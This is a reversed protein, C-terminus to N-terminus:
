NIYALIVIILISNLELSGFPADPFYLDRLFVYNGFLGKSTFREREARTNSWHLKTTSFIYKSCQSILFIYDCRTM